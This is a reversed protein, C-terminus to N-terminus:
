PWILGGRGLRTRQLFGRSGEVGGGGLWSSRAGLSPKPAAIMVCASSAGLPRRIAWTETVRLDVQM